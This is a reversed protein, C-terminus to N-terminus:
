LESDATFHVGFNSGVGQGAPVVFTFSLRTPSATFLTTGTSTAAANAIQNGAAFPNFTAVTPTARMRTTLAFEGLVSTGGAGATSVGSARLGSEINSAPTTTLDFTKQYYRQCLELEDAFSRAVFATASTGQEIKVGTLYFTAGVTGTFNVQNTSSYINGTIWTNLTSTTVGGAAGLSFTMFLGRGNTYNWTGAAPTAAITITKFEWTNAANITYETVYSRDVVGNQFALSYTGTISSRVWFSITFQKQAFDKFNYGEIIHNIVSGNGAAPTVANNNTLLLSNTFLYNAAAFTPVISSQTVTLSSGAVSSGFRWRDISYAVQAGTTTFTTGRQAIIMEPNIIYNQNISNSGNQNAWSMVGATTASLVQGNVSPFTNPLTYTNNSALLDPAKLGVYNVGNAALERFQVEGTEGTATGIPLVALGNSKKGISNSFTM